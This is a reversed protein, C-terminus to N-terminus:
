IDKTIRLTSVYSTDDVRYINIKKINAGIIKSIEKLCEITEAIEPYKIRSLYKKIYKTWYYKIRSIRGNDDVGVLYLANGNGEYIRYLMQTAKSEFSRRNNLKLLRKYERNGYDLEPPQNPFKVIM